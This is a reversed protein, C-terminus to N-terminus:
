DRDTSGLLSDAAARAENTVEAGALMRAIEEKRGEDDLLNVSTGFDTNSNTKSVLWHHTGRAAVQPSHTVVLVQGLDNSALKELREGVADAVAGGVGSDVEDFILTMILDGRALVAKLALTFRALEGGSAIKGLPGKPAGPNTSVQFVVKDQGHAGWLNENLDSVSTSFNTKEMKLPRLEKTVEKDFELAKMKRARSLTMSEKKFAQLAYLENRKLESIAADGEESEQVKKELLNLFDTLEDVEIDHKRALARLAFLREEAQELDDPDLELSNALNELLAEAESVESIAHGLASLIENMLSNKEEFVQDLSNAAMRLKSIAGEEGDLNNSALNMASLLKESNMMLSRRNALSLEEGEKPDLKKLEDLAHIDFERDRRSEELKKEALKRSNKAESWLAFAKKTNMLEKSLGGYADLVSLHTSENLLRQNEFQGHIEVLAQGIERLFQIGIPQDNVFAKSRGDSRLVRRLIIRGDTSAIERNELIKFVPNKESVEFVATVLAEEAGQRVLRSEGRFGLALGLAGLLISKGAGTEGTLVNLGTELNLDLRDILVVDRILLM